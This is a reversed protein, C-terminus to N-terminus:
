PWTGLRDFEVVIGYARKLTSTGSSVVTATYVADVDVAEPTGSFDDTLWQDNGSMDSTQTSGIQANTIADLDSKFIKLEVTEAGTDRVLAKISRIRDGAAVPIQWGVVGASSPALWLGVASGSPPSFSWQASQGASSGLTIKQPGYLQVLLDQLENLDASKVQSIGAAYTTNRSTPLSM